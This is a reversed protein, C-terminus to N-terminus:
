FKGSFQSWLQDGATNEIKEFSEIKTKSVDQKVSAIFAEADGIFAEVSGNEPPLYEIALLEKMGIEIAQEGEGVFEEFPKEGSTDLPTLL